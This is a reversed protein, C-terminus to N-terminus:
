ARTAYRIEPYTGLDGDIDVLVPAGSPLATVVAELDRVAAADSGGATLDIGPIFSAVALLVVLALAPIGARVGPSLRTGRRSREAAPQAEGPESTELPEAGELAEPEAAQEKAKRPEPLEPSKGSQQQDRSETMHRTRASCS